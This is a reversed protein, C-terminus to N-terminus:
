NILPSLVLSIKTQSKQGNYKLNSESYFTSHMRATVATGLAFLIRSVQRNTLLVVPLVRTALRTIALLNQGRNM